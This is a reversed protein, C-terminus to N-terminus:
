EQGTRGEAQKFVRMTNGGWIAEIAAEGYGRRLLELTLSLIDRADRCDSVGGGCGFASGIGIAEIGSISAMHEIHDVIDRTTAKSVNGHASLRRPEFSIMIVGGKAGIARIMEDTLNEPRSCLARSAAHSVIVPARSTDLVDFFSRESCDALDIIMGVRNCEAVVRRGFDSLGRDRPDSLDLASDCILNDADGCLALYRVGEEYFTSVLSLEEGLAYGNKLGIYVARRGEKELHYADEPTRAFGLIQPRDEAARRIRHIAELAKAKATAYGEPTPSGHPVAAVFFAADLGGTKMLSIFGPIRGADVHGDLALMRAQALRIEDMTKPSIGDSGCRALILASAGVLLSFVPRPGMKNLFYELGAGIDTFFVLPPADGREDNPTLFAM